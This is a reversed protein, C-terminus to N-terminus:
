HMNVLEEDMMFDILDSPGDIEAGSSKIVTQLFEDPSLRDEEIVADQDFETEFVGSAYNLM